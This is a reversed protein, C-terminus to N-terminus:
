RPVVVFGDDSVRDCAAAVEWGVAEAGGRLSSRHLHLFALSARIITRRLDDNRVFIQTERALSRVDALLGGWLRRAEWWRDYAANNRFGLFLSLAIGFVTFGFESPEPLIDVRRHLWVMGASTLMLFAVRPAIIPVVSGRVAFLLELRGPKDRVIM